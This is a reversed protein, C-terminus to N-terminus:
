EIIIPPLWPFLCPFFGPVIAHLYSKTLVFAWQPAIQKQTRRIFFEFCVEISGLFFGGEPRNYFEFRLFYVLRLLLLLPTSCPIFHCVWKNIVGASCIQCGSPPQHNSFIIPPLPSAWSKFNVCCRLYLLKYEFYSLLPLSLSVSFM